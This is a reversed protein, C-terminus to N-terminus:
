KKNNKMRRKKFFQKLHNQSLKSLLGSSVAIKHNYFGMKALDLRSGVMGARPEFTAFVLRQLRAHILAGFCMTCPELTVYLTSNVPLRYNQIAECACRLAVIEAHATPDHTEIPQNFGEGIVKGDCVIVAGVPVEGAQAGQNALQLARLMFQVDELMWYKAQQLYEAYNNTNTQQTM